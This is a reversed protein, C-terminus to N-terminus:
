NLNQEFTTLPFLTVTFMLDETPKIERDEYFTKRYKIGATLCDNKYQYILDYYETLNIKKNRRTQFQIFSNNNLNYTTQNHILNTDGIIGNQEIFDFETIFNNLSVNLGISNYDFNEIKNDVGFNYELGFYDFLNYDFSGFLYSNKQSLSSNYPINNELNDRFVSALRLQLYKNKDEMKEKKYDVGFTLSNGSELTDNLGLRNIDFINNININRNTSSYNKMESPNLRLSLNPTFYKNYYNELKILPMTSKLEFQSMVELQPSSKYVSDNKSISNLNKIFLNYNNKVGIKDVIYDKSKIEINNVIRSKLNNTDQLINEGNSALEISFLSNNFLNKSFDYYPLLYQYRDSNKKNLDEYITIGGNFMFDVSELDLKVGSQLINQNTPKLETDFLINDFIKLYSDNNVKEAFFNIKSTKFNDLNLNLDYKSFFHTISKKKNEISSKFNKVLNVDIHFFSDKNQQRYENQMFRLNSNFFTPKFTLDKNTSISYFYPLYVSSGLVNSNNFQPKLFGSQRKVTPDPHFFKPFYLVPIDYINLVANDYTIKKISKNHTIKEAKLSWPPCQEKENCSTFIGKNIITINNDSESSVGYLRPNNDKKGFSNNKLNIKTLSSRYNKNKLDFFGSEVFIIDTDNDSLNYNSKIKLNKGKLIENNIDFIFKEAKYIKETNDIITTPSDSSITNEIRLLTIDKSSFEYNSHIKGETNGITLIKEEDKYYIIENAKIEYNNKKDNYNINGKAKLINSKKNYVFKDAEIIIGDFSKITGRESGEFNDGNQTISIKPVEFTFNEKSKASYNILLFIILLISFLKNIM